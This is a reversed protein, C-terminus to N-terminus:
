RWKKLGPWLEALSGFKPRRCLFLPIHGELAYPSDTTGVYQVDSWLRELVERRDDAVLVCRGSHGRPGWLFYSQHGSLAAPMGYRPGFFDIAGAQGYNQGFFPCDRKDEAPLQQWTKGALEALEMWGFQDAYHQPLASTHSVETRPVEARMAKLYSLTRQPSLVPVAIPMSQAGAAVMLTVVAARSWRGTLYDGIVVAGAALLMPYVPALYYNKGHTALFFAFTFLYSWGLLRYAAFRRGFLLAGLGAMWIPANLPHLLLVQQALFQPPSLVVDRGSARINRMLELFPWHHEVNWLVNPLFLLLAAAAGAWIWPSKLARRQSTLLLGTAVAVAFIGISYKEELGLGLSVGFGLWYRPDNLRIARIACFACTMWFIPELCNTTLLSGNSLYIPAILMAVSALLLAYAKGGLERALAAGLVILGSSALAPVLRITRLSDGFLLRCLKALAPIMPPHDVFGWALHEGCAIYNLEDRFYGYGNNAWWHLAFAGAALAIAPRLSVAPTREIM